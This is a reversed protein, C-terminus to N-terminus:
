KRELMWIGVGQSLTSAGLKRIARHAGTRISSESIGMDEAIQKYRKGRALLDMITKEHQTLSIKDNSPEQSIRAYAKDASAFHINNFVSYTDDQSIAHLAMQLQPIDSKSVLGQAGADALDAAYHELSYSTIGLVKVKPTKKRIARCVDPGTLTSSLSMDLLLIDPMSVPDTAKAIADPASTSSWVVKSGPLTRPLLSALTMLAFNDNDTVAIRLPRTASDVPAHSSARVKNEHDPTNGTSSYM